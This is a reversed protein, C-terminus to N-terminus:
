RRRARTLRLSGDTKVVGCRMARIPNSQLQVPQVLFNALGFRKYGDTIAEGYSPFFDVVADGRILVYEGDHKMIDARNDRFTEAERKIEKPFSPPIAIAM